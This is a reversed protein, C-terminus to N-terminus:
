GRLLKDLQQQVSRGIKFPFKKWYAYFAEETEFEGKGARLDDISAVAGIYERTTSSRQKSGIRWTEHTILELDEIRGVSEENLTYIAIMSLHSGYDQFPRFTGPWKLQPYRFYTNGTYLTIRSQTNISVRGSAGVKRRAAKIDIAHPVDGFAAGTIEIDPYGRETGRRAEADAITSLERLLFDLLSVELVNALAAPEKPLPLFHGGAELKAQLEAESRATLPFTAVRGARYVAIPELTYRACADRLWALLKDRGARAAQSRRM